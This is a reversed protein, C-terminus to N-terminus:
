EEENKKEEKVITINVYHLLMEANTNKCKGFERIICELCILVPLSWPCSDCINARLIFNKNKGCFDCESRKLFQINKTLHEDREFSM